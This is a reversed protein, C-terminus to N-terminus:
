CKSFSLSPQNQLFIKNTQLKIDWDVNKLSPLTSGINRPYLGTSHSLVHLHAKSFSVINHWHLSFGPGGSKTDSVRVHRIHDGTEFLLYFCLTAIFSMCLTAIFSMCLAAIFSDKVAHM